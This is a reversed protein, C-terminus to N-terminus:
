YFFWIYIIYQSQTEPQLNETDGVYDEFTFEPEYTGNDMMENDSSENGDQQELEQNVENAQRGKAECVRKHKLEAGKRARGIRGCILCKFLMETDGAEWLKVLAKDQKYPRSPM